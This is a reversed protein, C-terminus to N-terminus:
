VDEGLAACLQEHTHQFLLAAREPTWPRIRDALPEPLNGWDVPGSAMLDRRETALLVRDARDILAANEPNLFLPLLGLAERVALKALRRVALLGEFAAPTLGLVGCAREDRMARLFPGLQDGPPYAEEDDHHLGGLCVLPSAGIDRLYWAVRVGHELVVYLPVHEDVAGGYRCVRKLAAVIDPLYVDEARPSFPYWHRGSATQIHPGRWTVGPESPPAPPGLLTSALCPPVLPTETASM